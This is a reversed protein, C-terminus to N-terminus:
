DMQNEGCSEESSHFQQEDLETIQNYLGSQLLVPRFSQEKLDQDHPTQEVGQHKFSKACVLYVARCESALHESAAWYWFIVAGPTGATASHSHHYARCCWSAPEIGVACFEM